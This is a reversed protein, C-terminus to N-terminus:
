FIKMVIKGQCFNQFNYFTVQNFSGKFLLKIKTFSYIYYPLWFSSWFCLTLKKDDRFRESHNKSDNGGPRFQPLLLDINGFYSIESGPM